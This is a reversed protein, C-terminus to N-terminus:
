PLRKVWGVSRCPRLRKMHESESRGTQRDTQPKKKLFFSNDCFSRWFFTTVPVNRVCHNAFLTKQPRQDPNQVRSEPRVSAHQQGYMRPVGHHHPASVCRINPTAKLQCLSPTFSRRSLCLRSAFCCRAYKDMYWRAYKKSVQVQM